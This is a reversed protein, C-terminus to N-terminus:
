NDVLLHTEYQVWGIASFRLDRTFVRHLNGPTLFACGSIRRAHLGRESEKSPTVCELPREYPYHGILSRADDSLSRRTVLELTNLLWEVCEDIRRRAL